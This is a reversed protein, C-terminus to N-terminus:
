DSERSRELLLVKLRLTAFHCRGYMIRKIVKIKNVSGEALGNSYSYTVANKIADIDRNIGHIFSNIESIGLQKAEEMWSDLQNADAGKLVDKFRLVLQYIKAFAPSSSLIRHLQSETLKKM